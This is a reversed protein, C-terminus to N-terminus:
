VRANTEGKKASTTIDQIEKDDKGIFAEKKIKKKLSEYAEQVATSNYEQTLLVYLHEFTETLCELSRANVLLSCSYLMFNIFESHIGAKKIARHFNKMMHSCCVHPIMLNFDQATGEGTVIQHARQLFDDVTEVNFSKLCAVMLASSRDTIIQRPISQTTLLSVCYKFSDLFACIAPVNHKSSVMEAVRIPAEECEGPKATIAHYLVRKGNWDQIVTGTADLHVVKKRHM